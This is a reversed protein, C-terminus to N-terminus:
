GEVAPSHMAVRDGELFFSVNNYSQDAWFVADGISIRVGPMVKGPVIVRCRKFNTHDEAETKYHHLM